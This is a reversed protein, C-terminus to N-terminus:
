FTQRSSRQSSNPQKQPRAPPLLSPVAVASDEAPLRKLRRDFRISCVLPVSFVCFVACVVREVPLLIILLYLRASSSSPPPTPPPPHALSSPSSCVRHLRQTQTYTTQTRKARCCFARRGRPHAGHLQDRRSCLLSGSLPDTTCIACRASYNEFQGDGIRQPDTYRGMATNSKNPREHSPHSATITIAITSQRQECCVCCILSCVKAAGAARSCKTVLSPTTTPRM